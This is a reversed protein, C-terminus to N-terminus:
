CIYIEDNFLPRSPKGRFVLDGAPAVAPTCGMFITGNKSFIKMEFTGLINRGLSRTFKRPIRAALPCLLALRPYGVGGTPYPGEREGSKRYAVRAFSVKGALIQRLFHFLCFLVAISIFLLCKLKRKLKRVNLHKLCFISM